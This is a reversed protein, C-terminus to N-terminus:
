QKHGRSKHLLQPTKGSYYLCYATIWYADAMDSSFLYPCKEKTEKGDPTRFDIEAQKIAENFQIDHKM